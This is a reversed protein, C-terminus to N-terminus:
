WRSKDWGATREMKKIAARAADDFQDQFQRATIEGLLYASYLSNYFDGFEADFASEISCAHWDKFEANMDEEAIQVLPEFLAVGKAGVVAPTTASLGNVLRANNEPTTVFRLFDVCADVSGNEVATNTIQWCTSYGANGRIIGSVGFRSTGTTVLPFPFTGVEFRRNKDDSIMRMHIGVAEIMAIQGQVFASMVDATQWGTPYYRTREKMLQFWDTFEPDKISFLGKEFGRAIEEADLVGNQTLVDLQEVKSVLLSGEIFIDYWHYIPLYPVVGIANLRNLTEDFEQYTEPVKTIGAQAFLEKNYIIGIPISDIPVFRMEGDMSRTVRLWPAVFLDAWKQNGPVYPNPEELYKTVPVIWDTGVEANKYVGMNQFIIDPAKKSRLLPVLVERENSRSVEAVQVTVGPHAASYEQALKELENYPYPNADSKEMSKTSNYNTMDGGGDVVITIAKGEGGPSSKKCGGAAALVAALLAFVLTKRFKMFVEEHYLGQLVPIGRRAQYNVGWVPPFLM